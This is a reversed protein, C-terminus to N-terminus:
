SRPSSATSAGPRVAADAVGPRGGRSADAARVVGYVYVTSTSRRDVREGQEARRSRSSSRRARRRRAPESSQRRRTTRRTTTTRRRHAEGQGGRARGQTKSKAGGETMSEMLEPLGQADDTAPRHRAPQGGGRLPPLHRRQRDRDARRDHPDRHRDALGERVRRDRPGQRPDGRDRGGPREPRPRELYGSSQQAIAM